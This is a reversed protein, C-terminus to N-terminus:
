KEIEKIANPIIWDNMKLQQNLLNDMQEDLYDLDECLNKYELENKIDLNKIIWILIMENILFIINDFLWVM